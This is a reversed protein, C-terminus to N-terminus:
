KRFDERIKRILDAAANQGGLGFALGFAIALSAVLGTFLISVFAQAVGLQNLAALGIFIYVSYRTIASLVGATTAGIGAAAARVVQALFDAIIAGILIILIAVVVNPIFRLIDEMLQSISNLGLVDSAPILFVIITLWKVFEGSVAPINVTLGAKKMTDTFRVQEFFRQAKAAELLRIVAWKLVSAIILGVIVIVIAGILNPLFSIIRAWADTIADTTTTSWDRVTM